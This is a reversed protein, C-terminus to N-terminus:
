VDGWYLGRDRPTIRRLTYLDSNKLKNVYKPLEEWKDWIASFLKGTIGDSEKSALFTVLEAANKLSSGGSEKQLLAKKYYEEGVKEAGAELVEELMATNLAGPSVCNVDVIGKLEEAITESFRVVGAKSVAYSSFYPYPSAAGGGSINVIKGGRNKKFHPIFLKCLYVTGLLNINITNVWENWDVDEIKGKTGRIGANNVLIDIKDFKCM